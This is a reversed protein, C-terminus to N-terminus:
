PQQESPRGNDCAAPDRSRRLLDNKPSAQHYECDHCGTGPASLLIRDHLMTACDPRHTGPRGGPRGM